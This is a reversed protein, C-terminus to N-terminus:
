YDRRNKEYLRIDKGDQVRLQGVVDFGSCLTQSHSKLRHIVSEGACQMFFCEGTERLPRNAPLGPASTALNESDIEKSQRSQFCSM